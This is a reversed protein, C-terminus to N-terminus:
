HATAPTPTKGMLLRFPLLLGLAMGWKVFLDGIAWTVWPLDEGAFALGFFLGTDVVSAIGSSILPARWWSGQKLRTFVWVDLLQGLLFATGSALAIRWPALWLSLVVALLFGMYVVKKATDPGLRRNSLDTVLFAFPYSLAGYTLWDEFPAIPFQVLYNSAAVVGMMAFTALLFPLSFLLM